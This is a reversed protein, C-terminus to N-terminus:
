PRGEGVHLDVIYDWNLPQSGDVTPVNTLKLQELALPGGANDRAPDIEFTVKNLVAKVWVNKRLEVTGSLGAIVLRPFESGPPQGIGVLSSTPTSFRILRPEGVEVPPATPGFASASQRLVIENGAPPHLLRRVLGSEELGHGIEYPIGPVEGDNVSQSRGDAYTSTVWCGQSITQAYRSAALRNIAALRARMAKPDVNRRFMEKLIRKESKPVAGSAGHVLVLPQSSLEIEFWRLADLVTGLPSKLPEEFNSVLFLRCRGLMGVSVVVSLRRDYHTFRKLERTGRQALNEVFTAPDTFPDVSVGEEYLWDRTVYGQGDIAIGTFGITAMWSLRRISLQKAGNATETPVGQCSLRYDSSQHIASDGALTVLL